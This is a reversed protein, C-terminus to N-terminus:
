LACSGKRLCWGQQVRATKFFAYYADQVWSFSSKAQKQFFQTSQKSCLFGKWMAGIHIRGPTIHSVCRQVSSLVHNKRKRWLAALWLVGAAVQSQFCASKEKKVKNLRRRRSIKAIRSRSRQGRISVREAGYASWQCNTEAFLIEIVIAALLLSCPVSALMGRSHFVTSHRLPGHTLHSTTKDETKEGDGKVAHWSIKEHTGPPALLVFTARWKWMKKRWIRTAPANISCQCQLRLFDLNTWACLVTTVDTSRPETDMWQEPILGREGGSLRSPPQPRAKNIEVLWSDARGYKVQHPHARRLKWPNFNHIWYSKPHWSCFIPM